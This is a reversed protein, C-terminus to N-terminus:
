TKRRRPSQTNASEAGAMRLTKGGGTASASQEQTDTVPIGRIALEPM